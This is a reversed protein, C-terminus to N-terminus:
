DMIASGSPTQNPDKAAKLNDLKESRVDLVTALATAQM